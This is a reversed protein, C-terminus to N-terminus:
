PSAESLPLYLVEPFCIEEGRVPETGIVTAVASAAERRTGAVGPGVAMAAVAPGVATDAVAPGVATDAVAPGVASAAMTGAAAGDEM